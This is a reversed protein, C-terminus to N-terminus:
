KNLDLPIKLKVWSWMMSEKQLHFNEKELDQFYVSGGNIEREEWPYSFCVGSPAM